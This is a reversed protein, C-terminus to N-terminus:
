GLPAAGFAILVTPCWVIVSKIKEAAAGRPLLQNYSGYTSRLPGANVHAARRSDLTSRPDEARSLWLELGPSPATYFREYRLALRGSPLRYLSVTGEGRKQIRHFRGRALLARPSMGALPPEELPTDVQQRVDVSWSGSAKVAVTARGHDVLTKSGAGPCSADAVVEGPRSGPGATVHVRGSRCRWDVKWQIARRSIDVSREASGTGPFSAVREWRAEARLQDKGLATTSVSRFAAKDSAKEAGKPDGMAMVAWIGVPLGVALFAIPLALKRATSNM